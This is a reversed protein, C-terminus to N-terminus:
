CVLSKELLTINKGASYEIRFKDVYWLILKLGRGSEQTITQDSFADCRAAQLREAPFVSGEDMFRLTISIDSAIFEVTFRRHSDENLAHRIINTATECAALDLSFRWEDNVPLAEMKEALWEALRALSTLTAPLTIDSNVSM